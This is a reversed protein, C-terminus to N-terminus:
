MDIDNKHGGWSQFLQLPMNIQARRNTSRDKQRSLFKNLYLKSIKYISEEDFITSMYKKIDPNDGKTDNHAQFKILYYLIILLYGPSFKSFTIKKTIARHM